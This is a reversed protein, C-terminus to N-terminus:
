QLFASQYEIRQLNKCHQHQLEHPLISELYANTPILTALNNKTRSVLVPFSYWILVFHVLHDYCKRFTRLINWIAMFYILMKWYLVMLCKGLNHNQKFIFWRAVRTPIWTVMAGTDM